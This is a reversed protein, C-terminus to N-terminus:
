EPLREQVRAISRARGTADDIDVIAGQLYVESHGLDFGVHRQTLVREIASEKRLGIVSDWPGCMGVDTVYATGGRLVREDATQVHTHSGLVASVRGDLYHGMANKESTAECHMDVLICLVGDGRLSGVLRDATRFPCDLPKMFVRGELNIVGLRAGSRAEIVAHGRGPAGDPYNAPRLQRSGPRDLYAAIERKSFTHNGSTLLDLGADLLEEASDPTIGAGGASNESNGVCVDLAHTERLRPVLKHVATRGPKGVIDGVFLLKM